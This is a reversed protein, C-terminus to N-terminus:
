LGLGREFLFLTRMAIAYSHQAHFNPDNALRLPYYPEFVYESPGSEFPDNLDDSSQYPKRAAYVRREPVNHAVNKIRYSTSGYALIEAPADVRAFVMPGDDWIRLGSHKAIITLMRTPQLAVM